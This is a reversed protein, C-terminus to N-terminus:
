GVGWAVIGLGSCIALCVLFMVVCAALIFGVYVGCGIGVGKRFSSEERYDDDDDWDDDYRRRRRRQRNM